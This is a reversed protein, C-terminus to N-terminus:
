LCRIEVYGRNAQAASSLYHSASHIIYHIINTAYITSMIRANPKQPVFPMM